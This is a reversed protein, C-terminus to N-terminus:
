TSQIYIYKELASFLFLRHQCEVLNTRQKYFEQAPPDPFSFLRGFTLRRLTVSVLVPRIFFSRGFFKPPYLQKYTQHNQETEKVGGDVQVSYNEAPGRSRSVAVAM